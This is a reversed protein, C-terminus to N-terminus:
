LNGFALSSLESPPWVSINIDTLESIITRRFYGHNFYVWCLVSKMKKSCVVDKLAETVPSPMLVSWYSFVKSTFSVNNTIHANNTTAKLFFSTFVTVVKSNYQVQHGIRVPMVTLHAISCIPKDPLCSYGNNNSLYVTRIMLQYHTLCIFTPYLYFSIQTEPPSSSVVEIPEDPCNFMVETLHLLSIVFSNFAFGYM